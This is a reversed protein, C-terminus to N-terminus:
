EVREGGDVNRLFVRPFQREVSLGSKEIVAFITFFRPFKDRYRLTAGQLPPLPQFHRARDERNWLWGGPLQCRLFGDTPTLRYYIRRAGVRTTALSGTTLLPSEAIRTAKTPRRWTTFLRRGVNKARSPLLREIFSGFGNVPIRLARHLVTELGNAKNIYARSRSIAERRGIEKRM